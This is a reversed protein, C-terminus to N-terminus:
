QRSIFLNLSTPYVRANSRWNEADIARSTHTSTDNFRSSRRVTRCFQFTRRNGGRAVGTILWSPNSSRFRGPKGRGLKPSWRWRRPIGGRLERREWCKEVTVPYIWWPERKKGKRRVSMGGRRPWVCSFLNVGVWGARQQEVNKDRPLHFEPYGIQGPLESSPTINRCAHDTVTVIVHM